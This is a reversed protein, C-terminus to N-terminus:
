GETFPTESKMIFNVCNEPIDNQSFFEGWDKPPSKLEFTKKEVVSNQHSGIQFYESYCILYYM